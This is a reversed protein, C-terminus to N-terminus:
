SGHVDCVTQAVTEREQREMTQAHFHKECDKAPRSGGCFSFAFAAYGWEAFDKCFDEADSYNGTFGHSVIIAPYCKDPCFDMPLYQAGRILLGGRNCTFLQKKVDM